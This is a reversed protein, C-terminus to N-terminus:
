GNNKNKEYLWEDFEDTGIRNPNERDLEWKLLHYHVYERIQELSYKNRIIYEYYNRQWFKRPFPQWSNSKVNKIYENTTMTKFWQVMRGLTVRLPSGTHEGTRKPCVRPDAGVNEIEPDTGVIFIIGHIHNPMIVFEDLQIHPFKEELKRWFKSIMERVPEAELLLQGNKTCITVFYAGVESYDYGNLRISKRKHESDFGRM